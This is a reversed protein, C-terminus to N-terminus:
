KVSVYTVNLKLFRIRQHLELYFYCCHLIEMVMIVRVEKIEGIVMVKILGLLICRYGSSTFVIIRNVKIVLRRQIVRNIKRSWSAIIELQCQVVIWVGSSDSLNM